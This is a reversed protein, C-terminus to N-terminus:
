FPIQRTRLPRPFLPKWISEGSPLFLSPDNDLRAGVGYLTAAVHKCMSAGDPCSCDFQIESPSPFIGNKSDTLLTEMARPLKGEVLDGMSDIKGRCKQLITEWATSKLKHINIKVIYPRSAGGQVLSFIKGEKIKLDLVAGHRVYSRGRGIRNSFDAYGELNKNWSIGWWSSALKTGQIEIPSIDPDKKKLKKLTNEAKAKKQAVSVYKPYGYGYRSMGPAVGLLIEFKM